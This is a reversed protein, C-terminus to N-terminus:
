ANTQGCFIKTLTHGLISQALRTISKITMLKLRLILINTLNNNILM